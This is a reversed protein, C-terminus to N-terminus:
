EARFRAPLEWWMGHTAGAIGLIFGYVVHAVLLVFYNATGEVMIPDVIPLVVLASAAFAVLGYILGAVMWMTRYINPMVAAFIYGLVTGTILHIGTGIVVPMFGSVNEGFIVGAIMRPATFLSNGTLVVIVTVVAIIGVAGVFGAFAGARRSLNGIMNNEEIWAQSTKSKTEVAM